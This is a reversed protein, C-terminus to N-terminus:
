HNRNWYDTNRERLKSKVSVCNHYLCVSWPFEEDTPEVGLSVLLGKLLIEAFIASYNFTVIM